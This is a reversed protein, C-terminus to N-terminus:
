NVSLSRLFNLGRETLHVYICDRHTFLVDWDAEYNNQPTKKKHKTKIHLSKGAATDTNTLQWNESLTIDTNDEQQPTYNPVRPITFYHLQTETLDVTFANLTMRRGVTLFRCRTDFDRGFNLCNISTYFWISSKKSSTM